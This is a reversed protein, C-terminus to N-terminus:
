IGIAARHEPALANELGCRNCSGMTVIKQTIEEPTDWITGVQHCNRSEGAVFYGEHTVSPTCYGSLSSQARERQKAIALRIDGYSRTMSRVNFSGPANMIRKEEPIPKGVQRGLPLVTPMNDIRYGFNPHDIYTKPRKPYWVKDNTVQIRLRDPKALWEPQLLQERRAPDDMWLGHTILWVTKFGKDFAMEIFKACNPNDTPEGGSLLISNYGCHQRALEEMKWVFRLTDRFTQEAMHTGRGTSDEMCHKCGMDCHNTVKVLM